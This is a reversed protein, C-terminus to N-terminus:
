EEKPAIIRTPLTLMREGHEQWLRILGEALAQPDNPM